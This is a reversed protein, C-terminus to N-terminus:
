IPKGMLTSWNVAYVYRMIISSIVATLRTSKLHGLPQGELTFYDDYKMHCLCGWDAATLLLWCLQGGYSM